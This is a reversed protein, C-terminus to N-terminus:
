YLYLVKPIEELMIYCKEKVRPKDYLVHEERQSHIKKKEQFTIRRLAASQITRDRTQYLSLFSHVRNWSPSRTEVSM